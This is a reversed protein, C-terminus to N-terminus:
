WITEFEEIKIFLNAEALAAVQGNLAHRCPYCKLALAPYSFRSPGYSQREPGYRISFM